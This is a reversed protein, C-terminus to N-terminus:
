GRERCSARGIQTEGELLELVLYPRGDLEDDDYIAVVGPHRVLNAVRAEFLFRERADPDDELGARLIKVAARLHNRHEAEYVIASGGEGIRRLIRWKEGLVRGTLDAEDLRAAPARRAPEPAASPLQDGFLLTDGSTEAPRPTPFMLTAVASPIVSGM